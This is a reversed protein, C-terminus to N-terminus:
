TFRDPGIRAFGSIADILVTKGAGNAGIIGLVEGSRLEFSVGDVAHLPGFAVV